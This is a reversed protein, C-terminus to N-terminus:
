AQSDVGGGGRVARVLGGAIGVAAAVDGGHAVGGEHKVYTAPGLFWFAREDSRLRQWREQSRRAAGQAHAPRHSVPGQSWSPNGRLDFVGGSPLGPNGPLRFAAV